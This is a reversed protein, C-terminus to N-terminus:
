GPPRRRYPATRTYREASFPAFVSEIPDSTQLQDWHEVPSDYFALLTERDKKLCDVAKDVERGIERRVCRDGIRSSLTDAGYIERLDSKMNAQVSLPVKNLVNATKHSVVNTGPGPFVEDLATWYGLAGDGDAIDPAIKLGHRKVDVLM